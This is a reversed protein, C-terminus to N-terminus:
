AQGPNAKPVWSIHLVFILLHPKQQAAKTWTVQLAADVGCSGDDEDSRIDAQGGYAYSDIAATVFPNTSGNNISVEGVDFGNNVVGHTVQLNSITGAQCYSCLVVALTATFIKFNMKIM